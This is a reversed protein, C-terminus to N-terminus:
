NRRWTSPAFLVLIPFIELRGMIMGFSLSIKSLVSLDAYNGAPGVVDLGPGINNFTAVVASFSSIFNPASLSTILVLVILIALYATLYYSVQRLVDPRLKKGEFRVPIKRHPSLNRRIEQFTSKLYIAVRSVKLGGATSGAMAGIFMLLLLIVHSFMPWHDYNKTTYGTTTIISSVTFFVDRFQHEFSEYMHRTNLLIGTIALGIISLYWRLEENKFFSKFNGILLAYYLNFNIGFAIMAIGLIYEMAPNQYFAVSNNKIGFGGTGAAGFAHIFADFVPVKVIILAIILVATMALYIIYLVRASSRVRSRIKDFTPGPVEARMIFVDDSDVKPLIALAFVLVGMGGILHTFSRWFLQSHSWSEINRAISAGTTTFGSATEFFSDVFSPVSGSFIMPLGGLFSLLIWSLAVVVFGEKMYFTRDAPARYSLLFGPLICCIMSLLFPYIGTWGEQYLIAVVVSPLMLGGIVMLIRGIVYRVMHLNM